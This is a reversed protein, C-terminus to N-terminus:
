AVLPRNLIAPSAIESLWAGDIEVAVSRHLLTVSVVLRQRGKFGSLIGELGTLAGREIRVKAGLQLFPCPQTELGSRVITQIAAIETDDVPVPTKAIGVVLIVGPTKLIPLRNLADFRCFLYGPFLPLEMQKFRDSWRRKCTYLPLLPDYGKGRLLAAVSKEYRARVRLAYWPYQTGGSEETPKLSAKADFVAHTQRLGAPYVVAM